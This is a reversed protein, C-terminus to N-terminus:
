SIVDKLYFLYITCSLYILYGGLLIWGEWPELKRDSFCLALLLVISIIMAPFSFIVVDWPVVIPAIAAGSGIIWLINLLNAGLVDGLALDGHEKRFAVVATAIEPLSTGMAVLTLGIVAEAIGFIRAMNVASDVLLRSAVVLGVIGILFRLTQVGLGGPKAHQQVEESVEERTHEDQTRRHDRFLYFLYLGLLLLLVTGELRGLVRNLMFLFTLGVVAILFFGLIGVTRRDVPVAAPALILGLALALGNDAMVSGVANGVVIQPVGRLSAIVTVTFEPATTALSVLVMGIILKPVHFISAIGVSGDV